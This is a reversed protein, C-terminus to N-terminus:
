VIHLAISPIYTHVINQSKKELVDIMNHISTAVLMNDFNQGFQTLISDFYKAYPVFPVSPVLVINDRVSLLM